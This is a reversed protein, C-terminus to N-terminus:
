FQVNLGVSYTKMISHTWTSGRSEPDALKLESFTFPNQANVYLRIRQIGYRKLANNSLNYGFQMYKVRLYAANYLWFDAYRTDSIASARPYLADTRDSKWYHAAYHTTPIPDYEAGINIPQSRRHDLHFSSKGTGQLLFEFDLKKFSFRFNSFYNMEPTPNGIIDRDDIGIENDGNIDLYKLDGPKAQATVVPILPNGNADFDNETLFGNTLYGYYSDIAYGVRQVSSAGIIDNNYLKEITNRNYSFGPRFSISFRDNLQEFYNIALEIGRNRVEGANVSVQGMGGVHSIQPRLIIDKTYKDYYDFVIEIKNNSLLGIDMGIDLMNVTEWQINPNGYISESGNSVNILTQYQYLGINENGLQGYSGRIKFNNLFSLDSMFAEQHLNYGVAISPFFGYKNGSGFRSSGDVRAALEVLFRDDYSYNLKSYASLVTFTEWGGSNNREQSYGALGFLQHSGINYTYDASAGLFYYTSRSQTAGRQQSWTERLQGTYYDFFNTNDRYTRSVDSNLRFSFQGKLNLRPIVEWRPQFNISAQGEERNRNGGREAMALPNINGSTTRYDGYMYIDPEDSPFKPVLNPPVLHLDELMRNGGSGAPAFPEVIDRKIALVDLNMLFKDSLSVTTNARINYRSSSSNPLMGTQNLYNATVAFRALSNGGSVSVSHNTLPTNKKLILDMWNINPYSLPDNGAITNDIDAQTYSPSINDNIQAETYIQMYTPADVLQALHTPNQIGYYGDYTVAVRGPIGRKTTIVIVGNAARAGYIAAAAADKLVTISEVTIPDIHNMDMPIGDVLVLPNSNGLTSIGRIKVTAADGGPLGSEQSVQLGTVGGQLSQSLSTIPKGAINSEIDLSAISSAIHKKKQESMGTVIVEDLTSLAEKMSIVINNENSGITYETNIYGLMSFVLVDGRKADITFSGDARSVVSGTSNRVSVSVGPLLAPPEHQDYVVGRISVVSDQQSSIPAKRTLKQKKDRIVITREDVTYELPLGKLCESLVEDLTAEKFRAVITRSDDLRDPQYLVDYSTQQRITKFVQRLSVEDQELTLRQALSNASVQVLSIVLIITTLKAMWIWKLLQRRRCCISNRFTKYM